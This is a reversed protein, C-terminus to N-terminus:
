PCLFNAIARKNSLREAAQLAGYHAVVINAHVSTVDGCLLVNNSIQNRANLPFIVANM